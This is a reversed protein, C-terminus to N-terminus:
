GEREGEATFTYENARISEDVQEDANHYEYERELNRYIWRMFDHLLDSVHETDQVTVCDIYEHSKVRTVDISTSYEHCYRGSHTVTARLQYFNRQQVHQLADAIAHLEIDQPCAKRILKASKAKYQYTGTFCAGDGQSWFGSYYIQDINIGLIAGQTKADDIVYEAFYDDANVNRYWKRAKEKAEDTLEEFEYVTTTIPM